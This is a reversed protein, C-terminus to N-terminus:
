RQISGFENWGMHKERSESLEKFFQCVESSLEGQIALPLLSRKVRWFADEDHAEFDARFRQIKEREEVTINPSLVLNYAQYLFYLDNKDSAEVQKKVM